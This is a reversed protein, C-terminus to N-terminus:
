EAPNQAHHVNFRAGQKQRHQPEHEHEDQQPADKQKQRQHEGAVQQVDRRQPAVANPVKAVQHVVVPDRNLVVAPNLVVAHAVAVRVVAVRVVM